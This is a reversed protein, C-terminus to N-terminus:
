NNGREYQKKWEDLFLLSTELESLAGSLKRVRLIVDEFAADQPLQLKKLLEILEGRMEQPIEEPMQSYDRQKWPGCISEMYDLLTQMRHEYTHNELVHLRASKSMIEREQQNKLYYDIKEHMEEISSFTGLMDENFLEAMLSRRDVVQFAGIAALEFTRPNVFDGDPVLEQAQVSSHLNINIKTANYITVADEASIRAGSQQLNKALVHAGDWDNGWIKFNKQILGKFAVRRNPYGAGLFSIDAGYKAYEEASLERPAHFSPLAAMPLYLSNKQGLAALKEIFPQKQIIAFATYLPAFARWYTFVEHDEVFWMVTPINMKQLRNLANRSMPAQALSLVMDPEFSEVQALIAQSIVQLFGGELQELRQTAVNLSKLGNFATYFEPAEFVEVNHGLNRLAQVCYRGIPLSGGYFPLIVLIRLPMASM